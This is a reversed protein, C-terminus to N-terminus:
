DTENELHSLRRKARLRLITFIVIALLIVGFMTLIFFFLPSSSLSWRLWDYFPLQGDYYEDSFNFSTIHYREPQLQVGSYFGSNSESQGRMQGILNDRNKDIADTLLVTDSYVKK